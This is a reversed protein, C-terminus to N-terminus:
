GRYLSLTIVLTEAGISLHASCSPLHRRRLFLTRLRIGHQRASVVDLLLNLLKGPAVQLQPRNSDQNNQRQRCPQQRKNSGVQHPCLTYYANLVRIQRLENESQDGQDHQEVNIQERLFISQIGGAM